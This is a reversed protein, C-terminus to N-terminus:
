PLNNYKPFQDSCKMLVCACTCMCLYVHVLVCVCACMCLCVDVLVCACTCMCLCVHVLVCACACMCLCVHVLVCACTCMCLYVHVLVCACTCMCLYVHVLVCAHTCMCLYVHVLVCTGCLGTLWTSAFREGTPFRYFFAGIKRREEMVKEMEGPDQFNGWEQERIRPDERYYLVQCFPHFLSHLMVSLLPSVVSKYHVAVVLLSCCAVRTEM